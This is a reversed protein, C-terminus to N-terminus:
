GALKLAKRANSAPQDVEKLEKYPERKQPTPDEDGRELFFFANDDTFKSIEMTETIGDESHKVDLRESRVDVVTYSTGQM